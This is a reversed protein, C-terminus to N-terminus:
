NQQNVVTCLEHSKVNNRAIQVMAQLRHVKCAIIPFKAPLPELPLYGSWGRVVQHIFEHRM